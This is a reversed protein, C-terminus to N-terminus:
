SSRNRSGTHRRSLVMLLILAIGMLAMSSPEPVNFATIALDGHVFQWDYNDWDPRVAVLVGNAATQLAAFENPINPVLAAHDAANIYFQGNSLTATGLQWGDFTMGTLDITNHGWDRTFTLSQAPFDFGGAQFSDTTLTYTVTNMSIGRQLLM